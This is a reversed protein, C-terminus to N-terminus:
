IEPDPLRRAAHKMADTWVRRIQEYRRAFEDHLERPAAITLVHAAETLYPALKSDVVAAPPDKPNKGPAFAVLATILAVGIVVGRAAGFAAGMIRDLWSLGVTRVILGAIVAVIWGAAIVGVFILLFGCLNAIEQSGVWPRLPAAAMGYFWAGCILGCVAAALGIVERTLGKSFAAAISAALLLILVFDLWNM